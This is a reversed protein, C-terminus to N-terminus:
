FKKRLAPLHLGLRRRIPLSWKAARGVIGFAPRLLPALRRYRPAFGFDRMTEFARAEFLLIQLRTLERRWRDLDSAQPPRLTKSHFARGAIPLQPAAFEYFRLMPEEFREGLFECVLRLTPETELVLDRYRIELYRSDGLGKGQRRGERLADAWYGAIAWSVDGHWGTKRLSVLVDRGERIVHIFKGDPFVRSLRTIETLYGPTKEGWRAKGPDHLRYMADLLEALTPQQLASAVNRLRDDPVGWERWRWHGLIVDLADSVDSPELRQTPTFRNMLDIVFWTEPPVDLRSHANLMLRFMTTGSRSAGVVFFPARGGGVGPSRALSTM